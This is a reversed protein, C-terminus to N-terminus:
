SGGDWGAIRAFLWWAAYAKQNANIPESHASSCNYWDVGETHSNQWETAWNGLKNGQANYYDCNDNVFEYYNGDPDYREIDAFDYLIKNNEECFTRIDDNAAKNDSDVEIDVHGTMYVFAVNPYQEELETMPKLFEDWLKDSKHKQSVQGCWSWMIVNVDSNAPDDLYEKTNNVWAPYYGVDGDMAKDHLDLAGDSGGNNWNFINNPLSLGKGGNNTFSVLGNMGTILQSGHSTHGYAIHLGEKAALIASEPIKTINVSRHDITISSKTIDIFYNERKTLKTTSDCSYQTVFVFIMILSILLQYVATIKKRTYM